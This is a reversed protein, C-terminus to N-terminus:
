MPKTPRPRRGRAFSWQGSITYFTSLCLGRRPSQWWAIELSGDAGFRHKPVALNRPAPGSRVRGSTDYQASCNICKWGGFTGRDLRLRQTPWDWDQWYLGDSVQGALPFGRFTCYGRLVLWHDRVVRDRDQEPDRMEAEDDAKAAAIEEATRHSVFVLGLGRAFVVRREGEAFGSLDIYTPARQEASPSLSDILPWAAACLGIGGFIKATRVLFDRREREDRDREDIVSEVM